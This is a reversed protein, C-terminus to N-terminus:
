FSTVDRLTQKPAARICQLKIILQSIAALLQSQIATALLITLIRLINTKM